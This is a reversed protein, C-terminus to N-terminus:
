RAGAAAGRTAIGPRPVMRLLGQLFAPAKKIGFREGKNQFKHERFSM